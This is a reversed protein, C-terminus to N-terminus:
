IADPKFHEYGRPEIACTKGGVRLLAHKEATVKGIPLLTAGIKATAERAKSWLMPKMTLVLEYEEGGYLTLEV